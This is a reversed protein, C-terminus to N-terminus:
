EKNEAEELNELFILFNGHKGLLKKRMELLTGPPNYCIEGYYGLKTIKDRVNDIGIQYSFSIRSLSDIKMVGITILLNLEHILRRYADENVEPFFLDINQADLPIESKLADHTIWVKLPKKNYQQGNTIKM